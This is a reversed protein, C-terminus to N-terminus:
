KNQKKSKVYKIFENVEKLDTVDLGETDLGQYSALRINSIDLNESFLEDFTIGFFDCIKTATSLRIDSANGQFINKLTFYPIGMKESLEKVTKIENKKMLLDLKESIDM